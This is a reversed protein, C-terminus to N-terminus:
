KIREKVRKLIKNCKNQATLEFLYKEYYKSALPKDGIIWYNDGLGLLTEINNPFNLLTKQLLNMSNTYCKKQSLYFALEIAIEMKDENIYEIGLIFPLALLNLVKSNNKNSLMLEKFYSKTIEETQINTTESLLMKNSEVNFCIDTLNEGSGLGAYLEYSNRNSYILFIISQKYIGKELIYIQKEIFYTNGNQMTCIIELYDHHCIKKFSIYHYMEKLMETDQMKIQHKTKNIKIISSDISINECDVQAISYSISGTFTYIFLLYKLLIM